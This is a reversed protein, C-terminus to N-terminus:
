GRAVADLVRNVANKQYYRPSHTTYSTYYPSTQIKKESESLGNGSNAEAERRRLLEEPSPFKDLPLIRETGTLFDYEEFAKGNSSYAFPADLMRAYEKAQQMGYSISFRGNKAEVVALPYNLPEELIYDPRKRTNDIRRSTQADVRDETIEADKGEICREM